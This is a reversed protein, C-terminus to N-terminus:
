SASLIAQKLDAPMAEDTGVSGSNRPSALLAEEQAAFSGSRILYSMETQKGQAVDIASLGISEIKRGSAVRKQQVQTV